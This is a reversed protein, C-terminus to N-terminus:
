FGLTSSLMLTQMYPRSSIPKGERDEKKSSEDTCGQLHTAVNISTSIDNTGELDLAAHHFEMSDTLMADTRSHFNLFPILLATLKAACSISM